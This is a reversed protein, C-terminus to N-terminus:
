EISQEVSFHREGHDLPPCNRTQAKMLDPVTRLELSSFRPPAPRAPVAGKVHSFKQKAWLHAKLEELVTRQYIEIEIGVEEFLKEVQLDRGPSISM